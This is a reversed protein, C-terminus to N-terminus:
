IQKLPVVGVDRPARPPELKRQLIKLNKKDQMYFWIKFNGSKEHIKVQLSGILMFIGFDLM